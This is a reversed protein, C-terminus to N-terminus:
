ARKRLEEDMRKDINETLKLGSQRRIRSTAAPHDILITGISPGFLEVLKSQSRKGAVRKFIGKHGKNGAETAETRKIGIRRGTIPDRARSGYVTAIFRLPRERISKRPDRKNIQYSVGSLTTKVTGSKLTRVNGRLAKARFNILPIRKGFIKVRAETQRGKAKKVELSKRIRKAPATTIKKTEKTINKKTDMITDNLAKRFVRPIKKPTERLAFNVSKSQRQNITVDIDLAV